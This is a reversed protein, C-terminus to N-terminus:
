TRSGQKNEKDILGMVLDKVQGTMTMLHYVAFAFADVKIEDVPLRESPNFSKRGTVDDLLADTLDKVIRSMCYLDSVLVELDSLGNSEVDFDTIPKAAIRAM